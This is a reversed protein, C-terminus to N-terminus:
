CREPVPEHRISCCKTSRRRVRSERDSRAAARIPRSNRFAVRGNSATASRMRAVAGCWITQGKWDSCTRAADRWRCRSTASVASFTSCGIATNSVSGTSRVSSSIRLQHSREGSHFRGRPVFAGRRIRRHSLQAARPPAGDLDVISDYGEPQCLVRIPTRAQYRALARRDTASLPEVHRLVMAATDDGVAVEIQPISERAELGAIVAALAPLEDAFPQKLVCCSSCAHSVTASVRASDWWCNAPTACRVYRSVRVAGTTTCRDACRLSRQKQRSM